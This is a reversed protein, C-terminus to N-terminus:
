DEICQRRSSPLPSSAGPDFTGDPWTVSGVDWVQNYDLAQSGEYVKQGGAWVVITATEIAGAGGRAFYHVKIPYTGDVPSAININEPGFGGRDDIDLRPDDDSGNEGWNPPDNRNCYHMDDEPDWMDAQNDNLLHLDLDASPGSWSLEVRIDDAPIISMSCLAVPSPTDLDNHVILTVDYVGAVDVPIDIQSLDSRVVLVNTASGLPVRTTQWTYTLPYLEQPDFSTGGLFRVTQPGVIEVTDPCPDIIAEPYEFDGGGNGILNVRTEPEDPDDSPIVLVGNDGTEAQLPEYFMVLPYTEGPGMALGPQPAPDVRFAPSGEVTVTGIRLPATGVNQLVTDFDIGEDGIEVTGFDITHTNLDIDPRPADIGKGRLPVVIEANEEDNSTLVLRGSYELFNGPTFTVVFTELADGDITAGPKDIAFADDGELVISVDLDARGANSVFLEQTGYEGLIVDLPQQGPAPALTLPQPTWAELAPPTVAIAPTLVRISPPDGGSCAAVIPLLWLLPRIPARM